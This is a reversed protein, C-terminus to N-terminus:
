NEAPEALAAAVAADIEEPTASQSTPDGSNFKRLVRGQRDLIQYHPLQDNDIGLFRFSRSEEDGFGNGYASIFCPFTAGQKELFAAISKRVAPKDDDLAVAVVVLGQDTYKKSLEVTHLFETKCVGCWTAWCDLFIVKGKNDVLFKAWGAEDLLPINAGPASADAPAAEATPAATESDSPTTVPDDQEAPRSECGIACALALACLSSALTRIM